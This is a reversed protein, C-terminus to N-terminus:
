WNYTWKEDTKIKYLLKEDIKLEEASRRLAKAIKKIRAASIDEDIDFFEYAGIIKDYARIQSELNKKLAKKSAKASKLKFEQKRLESYKKLFSQINRISANANKLFDNVAKLDNDIDILEEKRQKALGLKVWIKWENIAM